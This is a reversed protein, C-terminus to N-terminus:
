LLLAKNLYRIKFVNISTCLSYIYVWKWVVKWVRDFRRQVGTAMQPKASLTTNCLICLELCHTLAMSAALSTDFHFFVVISVIESSSCSWRLKMILFISIYYSFPSGNSYTNYTANLKLKRTSQFPNVGWNKPAGM